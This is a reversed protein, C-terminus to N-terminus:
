LGPLVNDLSRYGMTTGGRPGFNFRVGLGIFTEDESAFGVDVDASGLQAYLSASETLDYRASISYTTLDVDANDPSLRDFHFGLLWNPGAEAWSDFGFNLADEGDGDVQGVYWQFQFARTGHNGEIGYITADEGEFDDRGVYFGLANPTPFNYIGHVVLNTLDTDTENFQSFILDGQVSFASGVMFEGSGKLSWKSVDTEDLFASYGLDIEAGRLEQAVAAQALFLAGAAGALGMITSNM